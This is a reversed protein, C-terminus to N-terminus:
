VRGAATIREHTCNTPNKQKNASFSPPSYFFLSKNLPPKSFLHTQEISALTVLQSLKKKKKQITLSLTINQKSADRHQCPTEKIEEQRLSLSLGQFLHLHQEAFVSPRSIYTYFSLLSAIHLMCTPFLFRSVWTM